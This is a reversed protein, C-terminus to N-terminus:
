KNSNKVNEEEKWKRLETRLHYCYREGSCKVLPCNLCIEVEKKRRKENKGEFM